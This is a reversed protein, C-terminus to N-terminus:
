SAEGKRPGSLGHRRMLRYLYVRDVEAALAAQAVKGGHQDLLAKLYAREFEEIARRRGTAYPKSADVAPARDEGSEEDLGSAAPPLADQM